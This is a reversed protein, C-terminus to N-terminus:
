CFPWFGPCLGAMADGISRTEILPPAGRSERLLVNRRLKLTLMRASAAADAYRSEPVTTGQTKRWVRLLLDREAEHSLTLGADALELILRDVVLRPFPDLDAM